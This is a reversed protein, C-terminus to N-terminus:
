RESVKKREFADFTVDRLVLITAYLNLSANPM